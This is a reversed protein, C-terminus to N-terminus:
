LQEGTISTTATLQLGDSVVAPKVSATPRWILRDAVAFRLLTMLVLSLLNAALYHIGLWTVLVALLPGRLALMGNNMFLFGALRHWMAGQKKERDSFVWKETLVFNWLTSGQTALVASLLYFLGFLETFLAMLLSNVLLGSGGTVGFRFLHKQSLISLRLMQRFLLMAEHSNAKSEGAHREGFEFPIESVRLRPSRVLVELLIKFGEPRLEEPDIADRRVLFFGTLPDTIQRLRKPFLLRSALALGYSVVKRSFSLGATSGGESLRSAAVLNAGTAEAHNLLQPIVEPPHQLDGDMVCIWDSRVARMGEVVAKGLGNRREPPRAILTIDFPFRDSLSEVIQPTEDTSDDVFVVSLRLGHTTQRIHELLPEINKAENKTPVIISLSPQRQGDYAVPANTTEGTIRTFPQRTPAHLM